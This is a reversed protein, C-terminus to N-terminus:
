KGAMVHEDNGTEERTEVKGECENVPFFGANAQEEEEEDGEYITALNCRPDTSAVEDRVVTNRFVCDVGKIERDSLLRLLAKESGSRGRLEANYVQFEVGREIEEDGMEWWDAFINGEIVVVEFDGVYKLELDVINL